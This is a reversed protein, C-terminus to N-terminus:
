IFSDRLSDWFDKREAEMVLIRTEPQFMKLVSDVKETRCPILLKGGGKLAEVVKIIGLYLGFGREELYGFEDAVVMTKTNMLYAAKILDECATQFSTENYLYPGRLPKWNTGSVETDRYVMQHTNGTQPFFGNYGITDNGRLVRRSIVGYVDYGNVIARNVIQEARGSKGSGIPGYLILVSSNLRSYMITNKKKLRELPLSKKVVRGKIM